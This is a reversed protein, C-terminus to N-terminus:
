FNLRAMSLADVFEGARFANKKHVGESVFGFKEYLRIGVANDVYVTLELRKLGLWNDAIDILETMLATGIGMGVHDDHIGLIIDAAHSRRGSHRLLGGNGVIEDNITAVMVTAEPGLAELWKKTTELRQFPTRLTGFRFGPMNQLRALGEADTAEVARIVLNEPRM